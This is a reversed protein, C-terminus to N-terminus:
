SISKRQGVTKNMMEMAIKSVETGEMAKEYIEIIQDRAAVSSKLIEITEKHFDIRQDMVGLHKEMVSINEKLTDILSEYVQTIEKNM